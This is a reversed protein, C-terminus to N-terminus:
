PPNTIDERNRKLAKYSLNISTHSSAIREREKEREREREKGTLILICTDIPIHTDKQAYTYELKYIHKYPHHTYKNVGSPYRLSSPFSGRQFQHYLELFCISLNKVYNHDGWFIRLSKEWFQCVLFFLKFM